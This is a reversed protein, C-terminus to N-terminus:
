EWEELTYEDILAVLIKSPALNIMIKQWVSLIIRLCLLKHACDRFIKPTVFTLWLFNFQLIVSDNGNSGIYRIDINYFVNILLQEHNKLHALSYQIEIAIGDM